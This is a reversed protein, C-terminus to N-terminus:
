KHSYQYNCQTSNNGYCQPPRHCIERLQFTAHNQLIVALPENSLSSKEWITYCCNWTNTQKETKYHLCCHQPLPHLMQGRFQPSDSYRRSRLKQGIRFKHCFVGMKPNVKSCLQFKSCEYDGTDSIQLAQRFILSVAGGVKKVWLTASHLFHVSL